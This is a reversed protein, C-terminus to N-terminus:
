KDEGVSITLVDGAMAYGIGCACIVASVVEDKMMEIHNLLVDTDEENISLYCEFKVHAKVFKPKM